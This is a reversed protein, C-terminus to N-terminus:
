DFENILYDLKQFKGKCISSYSVQILAKFVEPYHSVDPLDVPPIDIGNYDGGIGVHDVGAVQLIKFNNM